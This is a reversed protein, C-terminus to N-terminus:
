QQFVDGAAGALRFDYDGSGVALRFELRPAELGRWIEGELDLETPRGLLNLTMRTELDTRRGAAGEREEASERVHVWGVQEEGAFFGMWSDRPLAKDSVQQGVLPVSATSSFFGPGLERYALWGAMFLWAAVIAFGLPRRYSRRRM